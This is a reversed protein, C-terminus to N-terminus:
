FTGMCKNMILGGMPSGWSAAVHGHIPFMSNWATNSPLELTYSDPTCMYALTAINEEDVTSKRAKCEPRECNEESSHAQYSKFKFLM